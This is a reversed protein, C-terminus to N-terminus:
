FNIYQEDFKAWSWAYEARKIADKVSPHRMAMRLQWFCSYLADVEEPIEMNPFYDKLRDRNKHSAVPTYLYWWDDPSYNILKRTKWDQLLGNAITPDGHAVVADYYFNGNEIFPLPRLRDEKGKKEIRSLPKYNPLDDDM